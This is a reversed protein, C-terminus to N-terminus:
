KPSLTLSGTAGSRDDLVVVRVRDIKPNLAITQNITVGERRARAYVEDTLNLNITKSTFALGRGDAAQPTIAIQCAGTWKGNQEDLSLDAVNIHVAIKFLGPAAPNEADVTATLGITTAEFPASTARRLTDDIQYQDFPRQETAFYGNRYRLETGPRDVKVKLLHFSGDPKQDQAYFALTYTIEADNMATRISGGLDNTNQLTVGGTSDSMRYLADQGLDRRSVTLGRAHVGYIAVDAQNLLSMAKEFTFESRQIYRAPFTDSIWIVKKRGPVPALYQALQKFVDLTMDTRQTNYFDRITAAARRGGRARGTPNPENAGELERSEQPNFTGIAKRLPPVDRTFDQLARVDEGLLYIAIPQDLKKKPDFSNLLKQINRKIMNQDEFETNLTDILLVTASRAQDDHSSDRNSYTRVPAEAPVEGPQSLRSVKFVAIRQEKGNDFLKFSDTTLGAVPGNSDRVIVNVEVLRTNVRFPEQAFLLTGAAILAIPRWLM